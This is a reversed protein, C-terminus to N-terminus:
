GIAGMGRWFLLAKRDETFSIELHISWDNHGESDVLVQELQWRDGKEIRTNVPSRAKPDTLIRSHGIEHEKLLKELEERSPAENLLELAADFDRGALARLLRFSENRAMRSRFLM